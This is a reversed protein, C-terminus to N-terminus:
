GDAKQSARGLYFGGLLLISAGITLGAVQPWSPLSGSTQKGSMAPLAPGPRLESYTISDAPLAGDSAWGVWGELYLRAQVGVAVLHALYSLGERTNHAYAVPLGASTSYDQGTQMASVPQHEAGPIHGGRRSRIRQGWYEAESRGDLVVPVNGSRVMSLLDRRLVIKDARMPAQFVEERTKSRSEGVSLKVNKLATLPFRLVSIKRQGAIYLLGAMADKNNSQDGVVLVHEDGKLGATGLLWLAGSFNALRQHPGFFDSAPLCRTNNLSAKECLDSARVDIIPGSHDDSTSTYTIVNDAANTTMSGFALITGALLLGLLRVRHRWTKLM